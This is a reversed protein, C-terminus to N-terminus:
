LDESNRLETKREEVLTRAECKRGQRLWSNNKKTIKATLAAIGEDGDFIQLEEEDARHEEIYTRMKTIIRDHDSSGWCLKVDEEKTKLQLTTKFECARAKKYARGMASRPLLCVSNRSVIAVCACVRRFGVRM